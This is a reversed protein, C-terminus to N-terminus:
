MRHTMNKKEDNDAITKPNAFMPQQVTLANFMASNIKILESNNILEQDTQQVVLPKVQDNSNKLAQEIVPRVKDAYYHLSPVRGFLRERLSPSYEQSLTLPTKGRNDQKTFEANHAILYQAIEAHQNGYSSHHVPYSDGLVVQHLATGGYINAVANVDAADQEVLYKVLDLHGHFAATGLLTEPCSGRDAGLIQNIDIKKITLLEGLEEKMNYVCAIRLAQFYYDYPAGQLEVDKQELIKKFNEPNALGSPDPGELSAVDRILRWSDWSILANKKHKKLNKIYDKDALKLNMKETITKLRDFM